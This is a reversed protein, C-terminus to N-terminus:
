KLLRLIKEFLVITETCNLKYHELNEKFRDRLEEIEEYYKDNLSDIDNAITPNVSLMTVDSSLQKNKFELIDDFEKLILGPNTKKHFNLCQLMEHLYSIDIKKDEFIEILVEKDILTFLDIENFVMSPSFYSCPDDNDIAPYLKFINEEIDKFKNIYTNQIISKFAKLIIKKRENNRNKEKDNSLKMSYKAAIIGGAVALAGGIIDGIIEKFMFKYGILFIILFLAIGNVIKDTKSLM